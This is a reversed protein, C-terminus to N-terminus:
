FSYGFGVQLFHRENEFISINSDIDRWSYETRLELGDIWTLQRMDWNLGLRVTQIADSREDAFAPDRRSYDAKQYQYSATLNVTQVPRWSVVALPGHRFSSLVADSTHEREVGYGGGIRLDPLLAYDVVANGTALEGNRATDRRYDMWYFAADVGLQLRNDVAWRVRGTPGGLLREEDNALWQYVLTPEMAVTVPGSRAIPGVGASVTTTDFDADDYRVTSAGGRFLIGSDSTLELFYRGAAGFQVGHADKPQAGPALQFPLGFAQFSATSPGANVNSDYLYGASLDISWPKSASALADLERQVSVGIVPPPNLTLVREFEGRAASVSGAAAYARALEYRVLYIDGRRESLREYATVAEAYRGTRFLCRGKLLLVDANAREDPFHEDLTACARAADGLAMQAMARYFPDVAEATAGGPLPAQALLYPHLPRDRATAPTALAAAAAALGLVLLASRSRYGPPVRDQHM